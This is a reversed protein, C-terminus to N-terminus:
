ALGRRRRLWWEAALALAFPLIWWASRMPHWETLRPTAEVIDSLADALHDASDRGLLRGGRAAAWAAMLDPDDSADREVVSSVVIPVRVSDVAGAATLEYQGITTPARLTAVYSGNSGALSVPRTNQQSSDRRSLSLTPAQTGADDRATVVISIHEGPRVLTPSVQVDLAPQRASAAADILDRWTADFTSQTSDRFRWADFAGSVYLTGAGVSASWLIPAPAAASKTGSDRLTAIVRAHAPLRSPVGVAFGKLRISDIGSASVPSVIDAPNRRATVRWSGFNMLADAPSPAAHDPLILVSAGRTRLLAGIGDVDRATLAEPAGIVVADFASAAAIADLSQPPRGTERSVNNSTIIRSTVAFRPDRELARRVFTSIWSPRRDFFLVNRRTDRVNVLLDHRITDRGGDVFARVQLVVPEARTPVFSLSMAIASDHAVRLQESSVVIGQAVLQTTVLPNAGTRVGRVLVNARVAVRADTSAVSPAQLQQFFLALETSRRSVVVSPAALQQAGDPLHDGIIVSGAASALPAAVVTYKESLSQMVHTHLASDRAASSAVVSVVPRTRRTATIAPDVIAAVVIAVAVGRLARPLVLSM